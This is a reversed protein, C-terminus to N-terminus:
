TRTNFPSIQHHVNQLVPQTSIPLNRTQRNVLLRRNNLPSKVSSRLIEDQGQPGGIRYRQAASDFKAQYSRIKLPSKAKKTKRVQKSQGQQPDEDVDSINEIQM